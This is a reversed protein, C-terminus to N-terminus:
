RSTGWVGFGRVGCQVVLPQCAWSHVKNLVIVLLSLGYMCVGMWGDYRIVVPLSEVILRM